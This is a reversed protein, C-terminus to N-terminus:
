TAKTATTTAVSTPVNDNNHHGDNDKGSRNNRGHVSADTRGMWMATVTRTAMTMMPNGAAMEPPHLPNPM